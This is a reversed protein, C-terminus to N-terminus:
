DDEVSHEVHAYKLGAVFFAGGVANGVAAWLLFPAYGALDAGRGVFVGMLVETSGSISHHLGAIGIVLTTLWVLVIQSLTDRAAVVLWTLLGMLWGAGVASMLTVWWPKGVLRAAIEGFAAADAVGLAPGLSTAFASFLAAGLLNAALVIGWLRWLRGLTARGSLVPLVASTTQETFLASYGLVVFVFGVSYLNANLLVLLPRPFLDGLLTTSVAMAFPGFGLDLGATLGSFFLAAAPRELEVEAGATQQELITHYNKRAESRPDDRALARHGEEGPHVTRRTEDRADADM